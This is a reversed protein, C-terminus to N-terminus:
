GREWPGPSSALHLSFTVSYAFCLVDKVAFGVGCVPEELGESGVIKLKCGMRKSSISM